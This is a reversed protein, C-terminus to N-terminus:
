YRKKNRKTLDREVVKRRGKLSWRSLITTWILTIGLTTSTRMESDAYAYNFYQFANWFTLTIATAKVFGEKPINRM